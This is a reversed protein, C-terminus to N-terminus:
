VTGGQVVRIIQMILHDPMLTHAHGTAKKVILSDGEKLGFQDKIKQLLEQEQDAAEREQHKDWESKEAEWGM